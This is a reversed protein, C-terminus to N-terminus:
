LMVTLSEGRPEFPKKATITSLALWDRVEATTLTVTTLTPTVRVAGASPAAKTLVLGMGTEATAKAADPEMVLTENRTSPCLKPASAELGKLEVHDLTTAPACLNVAM